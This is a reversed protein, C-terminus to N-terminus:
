SFMRVRKQGSMLASAEVWGEVEGLFGDTKKWPVLTNIVQGDFSAPDDANDCLAAL